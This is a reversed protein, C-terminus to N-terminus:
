PKRGMEYGQPGRGGRLGALRGMEYEQPGRGNLGRLNEDRRLIVSNGVAVSGLLFCDHGNVSAGGQGKPLLLGRAMLDKEVAKGDRIYARM